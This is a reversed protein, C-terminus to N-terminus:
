SPKLIPRVRSGASKRGAKNRPNPADQRTFHAYDEALIAGQLAFMERMRSLREMPSAEDQDTKIKMM